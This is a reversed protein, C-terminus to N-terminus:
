SSGTLTPAPQWQPATFDVNGFHTIQTVSDEGMGQLAQQVDVLFVDANEIDTNIWHTWYEQNFDSWEYIKAWTLKGRVFAITSSDPSWSPAVDALTNRTVQVMKDQCGKFGDEICALDLLYLEKSSDKDPGDQTRGFVFVLYRRDPSLGISGFGSEENVMVIVSQGTVTDIVEFQQMGIFDETEVGRIILLTRNDSLWGLWQGGPLDMFQYDNQGDADALHITESRLIPPKFTMYALKSGDPSWDIGAGGELSLNCDGGSKITVCSRPMWPNASVVGQGNALWSLNSIIEPNYNLLTREQLDVFYTGAPQDSSAVRFSSDGRLYVPSLDPDDGEALDALSFALDRGDPSWRGFYPSVNEIQPLIGPTSDCGALVCGVNLTFGLGRANFGLIGTGGGVIPTSTPSPELTATPMDTPPPPETPTAATEAPRQAEAVTPTNTPPVSQESSTLCGQSLIGIVLIVLVTLGM